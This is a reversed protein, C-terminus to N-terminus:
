LPLPLVLCRQGDQVMIERKLFAFPGEPEKTWDWDTIRSARGKLNGKRRPVRHNEQCSTQLPSGVLNQRVSVDSSGMTALKLKSEWSLAWGGHSNTSSFLHGLSPTPVAEYVKRANLFRRLSRQTNYVHCTQLATIHSCYVPTHFSMTLAHLSHLLLSFLLFSPRLAM